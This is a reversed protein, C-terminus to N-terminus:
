IKVPRLRERWCLNLNFYKIDFNKNGLACCLKRTWEITLIEKTILVDAIQGGIITFM